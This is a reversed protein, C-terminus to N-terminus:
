QKTEAQPSETSLISLNEQAGDVNQNMPAQQLTSAVPAAVPTAVPAAVPTAVPAAVPAAVTPKLSKLIM